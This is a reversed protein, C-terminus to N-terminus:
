HWHKINLLDNIYVFLKMVKTTKILVTRNRLM